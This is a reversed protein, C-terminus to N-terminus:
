LGMKETIINGFANEKHRRVDPHKLNEVAVFPIYTNPTLAENLCDYM